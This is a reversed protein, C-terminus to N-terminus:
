ALIKELVEKERSNFSFAGKSLVTKLKEQTNTDAPDNKAIDSKLLLDKKVESEEEATPEAANQLPIIEPKKVLDHNLFGEGLKPSNKIALNKASSSTQVHSALKEKIEDASLQKKEPVVAKKRSIREPKSSKPASPKQSPPFIKM